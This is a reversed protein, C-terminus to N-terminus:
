LYGQAILSLSKDKKVNMREADEGEEKMDAKEM